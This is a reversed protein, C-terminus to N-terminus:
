LRPRYEASLEFRWGDAQMGQDKLVKEIIQPVSLHQFIRQNHCHTLYALRPALTM